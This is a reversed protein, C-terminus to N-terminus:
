GRIHDETIKMDNIMIKIKIFVIENIIKIESSTCDALAWMSYRMGYSYCLQEPMPSFHFFMTLFNKCVVCNM